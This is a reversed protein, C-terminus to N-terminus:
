FILSLISCFASLLSFFLVVSLLVIQTRERPTFKYKNMMILSVFKVMYGLNAASM